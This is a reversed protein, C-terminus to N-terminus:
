MERQSKKETEKEAMLKNGKERQEIQAKKEALKEKVSIRSQIREQEKKCM